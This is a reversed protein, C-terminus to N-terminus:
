KAVPPAPKPLKIEFRLQKVPQRRSGQAPQYALTGPLTAPLLVNPSLLLPIQISFNDEYYLATVPQAIGPVQVQRSVGTSFNAPLIRIAAPANLAIQTAIDQRIVPRNNPVSWGKEVKFNLVAVCNSGPRVDGVFVVSELAVPEGPKKGQALAAHSLSLILALQLLRKM